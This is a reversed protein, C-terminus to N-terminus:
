SALMLADRFQLQLVGLTEVVVACVSKWALSVVAAAGFGGIQRDQWLVRLSPEVRSRNLVM